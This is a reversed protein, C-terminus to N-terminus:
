ITEAIDTHYTTIMRETRDKYQGQVTYDVEHSKLINQRFQELYDNLTQCNSMKISLGEIIDM